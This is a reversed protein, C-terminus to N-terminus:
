NLNLGLTLGAWPKTQYIWFKRNRDMLHDLGVAIGFTFANVAVHLAVGKTIVFGDYEDTIANKTVSPNMATSGIGLFGGASYGYHEIRRKYYLPRKSYVIRFVDSRYGMYAAGNPNTTFQNPFGSVSPRYKFLITLVDLDFSNSVFLHRGSLPSNTKQPYSLDALKTSDFSVTQLPYINVSDETAIVYAKGTFGSTKVNYNGENFHYKSSEQVSKCGLLLLPLLRTIFKPMCHGSRQDLMTIILLEFYDFLNNVAKNVKRGPLQFLCV